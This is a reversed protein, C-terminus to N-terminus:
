VPKQSSNHGALYLVSMKQDCMCMYIFICVYPRFWVSLGAACVRVPYCLMSRVNGALM